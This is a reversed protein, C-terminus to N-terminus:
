LKESFGLSNCLFLASKDTLVTAVREQFTGNSRFGYALVHQSLSDTLQSPYCRLGLMKANYVDRMTTHWWQVSGFYPVTPPTDCDIGYPLDEYFIVRYERCQEHLAAVVLRHDVHGGICAPALLISHEKAPLTTSLLDVLTMLRESDVQEVLEEDEDLGLVSADPLDFDILRASLTAAYAADELRRTRTTETEDFGIGELTWKSRSCVTVLWIDIDKQQRYKHLFGGISLAADDAHPQLVILTSPESIM